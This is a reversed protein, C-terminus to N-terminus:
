TIRTCIKCPDGGTITYHTTYVPNFISAKVGAARQDRHWNNWENSRDAMASWIIKIQQKYNWLVAEFFLNLLFTSAIELLDYQSTRFTFLVIKMNFLLSIYFVLSGHFPFCYMVQGNRWLLLYDSAIYFISIPLANRKM